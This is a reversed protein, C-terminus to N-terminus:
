RGCAHIPNQVRKQEDPSHQLFTTECRNLVSKVSQNSQDTIKIFSYATYCSLMYQKLM